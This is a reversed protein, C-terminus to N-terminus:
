SDKDAKLSRRAQSHLLALLHGAKVYSALEEREEAMLIGEQNRDALDLMRAQDADDFRLVLIHRALDPRMSGEGSALLRAFIAIEGTRDAETARGTAM